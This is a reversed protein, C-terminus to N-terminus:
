FKFTVGAWGENEILNEGRRTDYRVYGFLQETFYVKTDLSIAVRDRDLLAATPTFVAGEVDLYADTDIMRDGHMREWSVRIGADIHHAGLGAGHYRAQGGSGFVTHRATEGTYTLSLLGAHKEEFRNFHGVTNDFSFVPGLALGDADPQWLADYFVETHLTATYGETESRAVLPQGGGFVLVRQFDFDHWTYSTAAALSVADFQGNAFFGLHINEIEGHSIGSDLDSVSHGAALGYQFARGNLESWREAGLLFGGTAGNWGSVGDDNGVRYQGGLGTGFFNWDGKSVDSANRHMLADTFLDGAGM